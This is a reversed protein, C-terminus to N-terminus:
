CLSLPSISLLTLSLSNCDGLLVYTDEVFHFGGCANCFIQKVISADVLCIRMIPSTSVLSELLAIPHNGIEDSSPTAALVKVVSQTM